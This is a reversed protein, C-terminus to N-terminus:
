VSVRKRKRATNNCYDMGDIFVCGERDLSILLKAAAYHKYKMAIDLLTNGERDQMELDVGEALIMILDLPIMLLVDEPNVMKLLDALPTLGDVDRINTDAGSNILLTIMDLRLEKVALHLATVGWIDQANVDVGLTIFIKLAKKIDKLRAAIHLATVGAHNKANVNAGSWLLLRTIFDWGSQVAYHLPTCGDLDKSNVNDRCERVLTM